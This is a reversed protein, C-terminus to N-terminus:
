TEVLSSVKIQTAVWVYMFQTRFEGRKRGHAFYGIIIDEEAGTPTRPACRFFEKSKRNNNHGGTVNQVYQIESM